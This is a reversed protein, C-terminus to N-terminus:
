PTKANKASVTLYKGLVWGTINKSTKIKYWDGKKELLTVTEGKLLGAVKAADLSPTARVNLSTANVVGTGLIGGKSGGSNDGSSGNDSDTTQPAPTPTSPKNVKYPGRVLLTTKAQAKLGRGDDFFSLLLHNLTAAGGNALDKASTADTLNTGKSGKVAIAKGSRVVVETGSGTVLVQGAELVVVSFEGTGSGPGATKLAEVEQQLTQITQAQLALQEEYKQRMQQLEQAQKGISGDVYSRSILPDAESGPEPATDSAAMTINFYVSISLLVVLVGVFIRFRNKM